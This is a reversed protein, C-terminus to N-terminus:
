ESLCLRSRDRVDFRRVAPSTQVMPWILSSRDGPPETACCGNHSPRRGGAIASTEVSNDAVVLSRECGPSWCSRQIEKTIDRRVTTQQSVSFWRTHRTSERVEARCAVSNRGAANPTLYRVAKSDRRITAVVASSHGQETGSFGATFSRSLRM